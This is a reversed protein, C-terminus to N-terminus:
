NSLIPNPNNKVSEWQEDSWSPIGFKEFYKRNKEHADHSFHGICDSIFKNNEPLKKQLTMELALQSYKHNKPHCIKRIFLFITLFLSIFLIVVDRVLHKLYLDEILEALRNFTSNNHYLPHFSLLFLVTKRIGDKTVILDNSRSFTIIDISLPTSKIRKSLTILFPNSKSYFLQSHNNIKKLTKEPEKLFIHTIIQSIMLFTPI